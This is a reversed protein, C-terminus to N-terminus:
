ENQLVYMTYVHIIILLVNTSTHTVYKAMSLFRHCYTLTTKHTHLLSAVLHSNVSSTAVPLLSSPHPHFGVTSQSICIHFSHPSGQFGHLWTHPPRYITAICMSLILRQTASCLLTYLHCTVMDLYKCTLFPGYSASVTDVVIHAPLYLSQPKLHLLPQDNHWRGLPCQLQNHALSSLKSRKM